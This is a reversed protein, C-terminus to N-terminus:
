YWSIKIGAPPVPMSLKLFFKISIYKLM